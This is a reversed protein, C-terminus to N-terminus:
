SKIRLLFFHLIYIFSNKKKKHNEEEALDYKKSEIPWQGALLKKFNIHMTFCDM